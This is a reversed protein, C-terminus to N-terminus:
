TEAPKEPTAAVEKSEDSAAPTAAVEKSEGSAEPTAAVEKSADSAAPTAAVEKSADSAAPTVAVEKSADSAAPTVAVEKSAELAAPTVAVEKSADSAGPTAAVEEIISEAESPIQFYGATMESVDQLYPMLGMMLAERSAYDNIFFEKGGWKLVASRGDPQIAAFLWEEERLTWYYTPVDDSSLRAQAESFMVLWDSSYDIIEFNDSLMHEVMASLPKRAEYLRDNKGCQMSLGSASMGKCLPQHDSAVAASSDFLGRKGGKDKTVRQEVGGGIGLAHSISEAMGQFTSAVVEGAVSESKQKSKYKGNLADNISKLTKDCDYQEIQEKVLESFPSWGFANLSLVLVLGSLIVSIFRQLIM